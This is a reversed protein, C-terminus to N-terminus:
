KSQTHTPPPTLNLVQGETFFYGVGRRYHFTGLTVVDSINKKLCKKNHLYFLARDYPIKRM